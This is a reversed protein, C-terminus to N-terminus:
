KVKISEFSVPDEDCGDMKYETVVFISQKVCKQQQKLDAHLSQLSETLYLFAAKRVEGLVESADKTPQTRSSRNM